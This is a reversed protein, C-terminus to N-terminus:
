KVIRRVPRVGIWPLRNTEHESVRRTLRALDPSDLYSGGRVVRMQSGAAERLGDGPRPAVSFPERRDLCWEAVNGIVEHLGFGNAAYTGVPAHALYPDGERLNAEVARAEEGGRAAYEWQAETPLELELRQMALNADRWSITEVPHRYTVLHGGVDSNPRTTSPEDGFCNWWATQNMEYKSVFFPDLEVEVSPGEDPDGGDADSGIRARAGPLLVFVMAANDEPVPLLRGTRPHRKPVVGSEVHAFEFLKSQSDRGLPVLGRQPTLKLGHYRPDTAIEAITTAWLEKPELLSKREISEARARRERVAKMKLVGFERIDNVLGILKDHRWQDGPRAFRYTYREAISFRLRRHRTAIELMAETSWASPNAEVEEWRAKADVFEAKERKSRAEDAQEEERTRPLARERLGALDREHVVQRELLREARALWILMGHEGALKEPVMPWLEQEEKVLDALVREDSLREVDALTTALEAAHTSAQLWLALPGFIVLLAGLICGVALTPHRQVARRVRLLAGPRRAVIPRHELIRTLDAALDQMSAYRREPDKDMAVLCVTEADWSVNQNLLRPARARGELILKRTLDPNPQLYPAKLTLLEYLTVGLGYVDTRRDAAGSRIQEPAMYPLSGLETGTRTLRDVGEALSCGFDVLRVQGDTGLM